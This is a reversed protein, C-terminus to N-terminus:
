SLALELERTLGDLEDPPLETMPRPDAWPSRSPLPDSTQRPILHVHLHAQANGLVAYNIRLAGTLRRLRSGVLAADSWLLSLLPDSLEDMHEAHRDLVLLARGPFRADNYLGLRSIRLSEAAVPYWLEFGCEGCQWPGRM